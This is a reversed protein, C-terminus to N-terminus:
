PRPKKPRAAAAPAPPSAALAALKAQRRRQDQGAALYFLGICAGVGVLLLLVIMVYNTAPGEPESPSAAAATTGPQTRVTSPTTTGPQRPPASASSLVTALPVVDEGLDARIQQYLEDFRAFEEPPLSGSIRAFGEVGFKALHLNKTQDDLNPQQLAYERYCQAQNYRADIHMQELGERDQGQMLAQQLRQALGSWGWVPPDKRGNLAVLFKDAESPSSQAWSQYLKAAEFQVNPATPSEAVAELMVEEAAPFDGQRRRCEALRLKIVTGQEPSSLFTADSEAKELMRDYTASAKTFFDAAQQPADASGEALSTYTEAIWLLSGFTQGEQRQYVSDLFEQFGARVQDLRDSQGSARLQEMENQLERGFAVYIQTLAASDDGAAISELQARADAAAELNRLGIYARLLQQYAFGAIKASRVDAPNEPRAEGPPVAVAKLVSHPEATLIELAGVVNEATTYVGTLNRIQALTLKGLVLEPPTVADQSLAAQWSTTGNELHRAAADRWGNMEDVPVRQPEPLSTQDSYATWYAQGALIQSRAYDTATSPVQAWWEAAKVPNKANIYLKAITDRADTADDSDPWRDVLEQAAAITQQEEYSRDTGAAEAYAYNFAAMKLYASKRAYHDAEANEPDIHTAAYDAAAASEYYKGQLFYGYALQLRAIVLNLEDTEEDALRLALDFIRTMEAASAVMTQQAAQAEQTKGEAILQEVQARLKSTDSSYQSGIGFAENFNRPDEEPRGSAAAVRRVLGLAPAKLRGPFRAIQRGFALAQTLLDSREGEPLTRDAALLEMAHAMEYLIGMGIDTQARRGADRRWAGAEDIVLRYDKKADHNLCILRFYLARSKLDLMAESTGEHKLFENYIGLAESILDMEEFCKGQWLRALLGVVQSRHRAHIEAYNAQARELIENRQQSGRDYTQAEWYTCEAVDLIAQLYKLEAAERQQRLVKEEEPIQLPFARFAAEHQTLAEQFVTRARQILDRASQQFAARNGANSPDEADWIDVQAKELLIKARQTNAEGALAHQPASQVFQEFAAQAADLQERRAKSSSLGKSGDLLTLAREYPLVEKVEPPLDDRASLEDLYDLAYDHYGRARLGRVFELFPEDAPASNLLLTALIAVAMLLRPVIRGRRLRLMLPM